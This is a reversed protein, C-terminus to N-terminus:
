VMVVIITTKGRQGFRKNKEVPVNRTSRTPFKLYELLHILENSANFHWQKVDKYKEM